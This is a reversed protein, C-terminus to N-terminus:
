FYKDKLAAHMCHKEYARIRMSLNLRMYFNNIFYVFQWLSLM